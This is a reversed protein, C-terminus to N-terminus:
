FLGMRKRAWSTEEGKTEVRCVFINGTKIIYRRERAEEEGKTAGEEQMLSHPGSCVQREAARSVRVIEPFISVAVWLKLSQTHSESM